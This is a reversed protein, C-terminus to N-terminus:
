LRKVAAHVCVVSLPKGEDDRIIISADIHTRGAEAAEICLMKITDLEARKLDPLDVSCEGVDRSPALRDIHDFRYQM